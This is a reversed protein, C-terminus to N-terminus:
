QNKVYKGILGGSLAAVVIGQWLNLINKDRLGLIILGLAFFAFFRKYKKM